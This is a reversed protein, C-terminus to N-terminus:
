YFLDGRGFEYPPAYDDGEEYPLYLLILFLPIEGVKCQKEYQPLHLFMTEHQIAEEKSMLLYDVEYGHYYNGDVIVVFFKKRDADYYVDSIKSCRTIGRSFDKVAAEIQEESFHKKAVSICYSVIEKTKKELEKKESENPM